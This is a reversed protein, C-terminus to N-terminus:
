ALSWLSSFVVVFPRVSLVVFLLKSTRTQKDTQRSACPVFPLVEPLQKSMDVIYPEVLEKAMDYEMAKISKAIADTTLPNFKHASPM